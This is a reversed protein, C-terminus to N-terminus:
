TTSPCGAQPIQYYRARHVLRPGKTLVPPSSPRLILGKPTLEANADPYVSLALRLDDAFLMRFNREAAIGAGFQPRLAAWSIASRQQVRDCHGIALWAIRRGLM